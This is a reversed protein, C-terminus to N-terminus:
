MLLKNKYDDENDDSGDDAQMVKQYDSFSSPSRLKM